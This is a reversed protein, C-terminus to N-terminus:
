LLLTMEPTLPSTSQGTKRNADGGAPCRAGPPKKKTLSKKIADQWSMGEIKFLEPAPGPKTRTTERPREILPRVRTYGLLKQTSLSAQQAKKAAIRAERKAQASAAKTPPKKPKAPKKPMLRSQLVGAHYFRHM